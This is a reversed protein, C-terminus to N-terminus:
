IAGKTLNHHIMIIQSAREQNEFNPIHGKKSIYGWTLGQWARGLRIRGLSIITESAPLDLPDGAQLRHVLRRRNAAM